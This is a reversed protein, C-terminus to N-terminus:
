HKINRYVCNGDEKLIATWDIDDILMYYGWGNASPNANRATQIKYMYISGNMFRRELIDGTIWDTMFSDNHIVQYISPPDSKIREGLTGNINDFYYKQYYGNEFVMARGNSKSLCIGDVTTYDYVEVLVTKKTTSLSNFGWHSRDEKDACAALAVLMLAALIVMIIRKAM